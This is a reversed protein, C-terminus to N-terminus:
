IATYMSALKPEELSILDDHHGEREQDALQTLRNVIVIADISKISLSLIEKSEKTLWRLASGDHAIMGNSGVTGGM